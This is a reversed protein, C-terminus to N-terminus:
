VKSIRFKSNFDNELNKPKYTKKEKKIKKNKM